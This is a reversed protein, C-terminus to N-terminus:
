TAIYETMEIKQIIRQEIDVKMKLNDYFVNYLTETIGIWISDSILMINLSKILTRKSLKLKLKYIRNNNCLLNIYEELAKSNVSYKKIM